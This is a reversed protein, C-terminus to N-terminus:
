IPDGGWGEGTVETEHADERSLTRYNGLCPTASVM